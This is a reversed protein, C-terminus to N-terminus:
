AARLRARTLAIAQENRDSAIWHRGCRQAVFPVTGGGCLFDAVLDRPRSAARIIREVLAIPKETPYGVRHIGDVPFRAAVPLVWWDEPVKGAEDLEHGPNTFGSGELDGRFNQKTKPHHPVRVADRDFTWRAGKSHWLITDHKRNFQGMAPSGPGTYCWIIENRFGPAGAEGGPGFVEDLILRAHHSARWDLHVFISGTPRLLAHSREVTARLWALYADLSTWQDSYAIGDREQPRQTFFPPDTVILDITGGHGAALLGEMVELNDGHILRGGPPSERPAPVRPRRAAAKM